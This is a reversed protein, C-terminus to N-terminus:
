FAEHIVFGWMEENSLPAQIMRYEVKVVAGDAGVYKGVNQVTTGLTLGNVISDLSLAAFYWAGSTPGTTGIYTTGDVTLRVEMDRPSAASNAHKFGIFLVQVFATEKLITYWQNLVPPKIYHSAKPKLRWIGGPRPATEGM